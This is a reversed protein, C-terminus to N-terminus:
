RPHAHSTQNACEAIIAHIRNAIPLVFVTMPRDGTGRLRKSEQDPNVAQARTKVTVIGADLERLAARVRKPNWPMDREVRFPTLWPSEVPADSTFLGTGPHVPEISTTNLFAPILDAREISPDITYLWPGIPHIDSARDPEGLLTHASGDATLLTARRYDPSEEGAWLVAQTLIGRESIIELEGPPLLDAHVGPNLKIAALPANAIFSEIDTLPPEFADPSRTRGKDTRRAPDIHIAHTGADIDRIDGTRHTCNANTGAIWARREDLDIATVALGANVLAITDGGIGCCADVVAANAGLIERFRAAKHAATRSSSAMELGERDAIIRDAHDPFKTRAKVRAEFLESVVAVQDPSWRQRLKVLQNLSPVAEIAERLPAADDLAAWQWTELSGIMPHTNGKALFSAPHTKRRVGTPFM